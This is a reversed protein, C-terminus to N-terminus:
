VGYRYYIRGIRGFIEAIRMKAWLTKGAKAALWFGGAYGAFSCSIDLPRVKHLRWGQEQV